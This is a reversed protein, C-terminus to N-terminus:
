EDREYVLVKEREIAEALALNKIVRASVVNCERGTGREVEKAFRSLDRLNFSVSRDLEVRVDIDSDDGFAGRAFSGFLYAREIAPYRRAACRVAVRVHEAEDVNANSQAKGRLLDIIVDLKGSIDDLTGDSREPVAVRQAVGARGREAAAASLGDLVDEVFVIDDGCKAAFTWLLRVADTPTYGAEALVADGLAKVNEDIRVNMQVNGM